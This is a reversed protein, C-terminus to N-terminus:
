RVIADVQASVETVLWSQLPELGQPTIVNGLRGM